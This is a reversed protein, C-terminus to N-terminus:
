LNTLEKLSATAYVESSQEEFLSCPDFDEGRPRTMFELALTPRVQGVHITRRKGEMIMKEPNVKKITVTKGAVDRKLVVYPGQYPNKLKRTSPNEPDIPDKWDLLEGVVPYWTGTQPFRKRQRTANREHQEKTAQDKSQQAVEQPVVCGVTSISKPQLLDEPLPLHFVQRYYRHNDNADEQEKTRPVRQLLRTHDNLTVELHVDDQKITEVFKPQVIAPVATSNDRGTTAPVAPAKDSGTTVAKASIAAGPDEKPYVNQGKVDVPRSPRSPEFSFGGSKPKLNM